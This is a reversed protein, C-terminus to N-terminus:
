RSGRSGRTVQSSRTVQQQGPALLPVTPAIARNEEEEGEQPPLADLTDGMIKKSPRMLEPRMTFFTVTRQIKREEAERLWRAMRVFEPECCKCSGSEVDGGACPSYCCPTTCPGLCSGCQLSHHGSLVFFQSRFFRVEMEQWHEFCSCACDCCDDCDTEQNPHRPKAPRHIGVEVGDAFYPQWPDKLNGFLMPPLISTYVQLRWQHHRLQKEALVPEQPEAAVQRAVDTEQRNSKGLNQVGRIISMTLFALIVWVLAIVWCIAHFAIRM